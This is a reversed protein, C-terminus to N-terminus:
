HTRATQIAPEDMPTREYFAKLATELAEFVGTSTQQIQQHNVTVNANLEQAAAAVPRLLCLSCCFSFILIFRM